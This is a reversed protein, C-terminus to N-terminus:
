LYDVKTRLQVDSKWREEDPLYMADIDIRYFSHNRTLVALATKKYLDRQVGEPVDDAEIRHARGSAQVGFASGLQQHSNYISFAIEPNAEINRSHLAETHSIFYFHMEDDVECILPSSWPKGDIGVTSLCLYNNEHITDQLIKKYDM